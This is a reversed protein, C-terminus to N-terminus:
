KYFEDLKFIRLKAFDYLRAITDEGKYYLGFLKKDRIKAGSQELVEKNKDLIEYVNETTFTNEKLEAWRKSISEDLSLTGYKQKNYEMLGKIKNYESRGAHISMSKEYDYAFNDNKWTVGLSIDVDWPIFYVSYEEGNWKLVYYMNKFGSNDTIVGYNFFISFDIFADTNYYKASLSFLHTKAIDYTEKEGFPSYIIEYAESVTDAEWVPKGKFLIDTEKNLELYKRDIRRQLLYLGRYDGNIVLEVYEGQSMKFNNGSQVIYKNWFDMLFKERLDTDDRNMPNLIWDDDSGLGLLEADFIEGKNKLSLKYPKKIDGLSSGGRPNWELESETIKLSKYKPDSGAFLIMNGQSVNRGDENKYAVRGDLSIVPLTTIIVDIIRYEGDKVAALSLYMSNKVAYKLDRLCQDKIFYLEYKESRLEGALDSFNNLANEPQSIYIREWKEDSAVKKGNFLIERTDFRGGFSYNELFSKDVVKVGMCLNSENVLSVIFVSLFAAFLVLVFCLKTLQEKKM